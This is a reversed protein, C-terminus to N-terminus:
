QCLKSRFDDWDVSNAYYAHANEYWYDRTLTGIFWAFGPKFLFYEKGVRVFLFARGGANRRDVMWQRQEKTFHQIKVKTSDRKPWGHLTKLEIWVDYSQGDHTFCANVDPTGLEAGNEVRIWHGHGHAHKRMYAWLSSEAM